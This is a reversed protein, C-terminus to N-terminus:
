ATGQSLYFTALALDAADTIKINHSAGVVVQPRYGAWEMASSEDTIVVGAALAGVLSQLLLEAPFLQPTQALWLRDRNITHSILGSDDLQKVTDTAASALIGGCDGDIVAEILRNIDTEAVCPRAVDHVLLWSRQWDAATSDAKIAQMSNLVSHCRQDGGLVATIAPNAALALKPWYNDQPALAVVIREIAVVQLLTELTHEIVTKAGLMLYQKPQAAGVRSGIGAAPVIAIIRQAKTMKKTL